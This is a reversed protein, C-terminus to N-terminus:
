GVNRPRYKRGDIVGVPSSLRKHSSRKPITVVIGAGSWAAAVIRQIEGGKGYLRGAAKATADAFTKFGANPPLLKTLAVYWIRGIAEWTYGGLATSAVCFVQNPIGSNIHAGGHDENTEVYERVHAVQPDRGLIPDDYATGPTQMSRIARGNVGPALLGEGILWDSDLAKQKRVYQKFMIGFADSIHENLAGTQGTYGLGATYQTVGHTQAHGIVDIPATLRNFLKRDADGFIIQRGNWVVNSFQRGYHVTADLTAGHNDISHRAFLAAFFDFAALSGDYIENVEPDHSRGRHDSRALKGPLETRHRADYVRCRRKPNAEPALKAVMRELESAPRASVISQTEELTARALRAMEGSGREAICRLMHPPIVSCISHHINEM